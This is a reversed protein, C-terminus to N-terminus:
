MGSKAKAHVNLWSIIKTRYESYWQDVTFNGLNTDVTDLQPGIKFLWTYTRYVLIKFIFIRLFM